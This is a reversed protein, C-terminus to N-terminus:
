CYFCCIGNAISSIIMPPDCKKLLKPEIKGVPEAAFATTIVLQMIMLIMLFSSIWKKTSHKKM